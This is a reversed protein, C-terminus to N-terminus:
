RALLERFRAFDARAEALSRDPNVRRHERVFSALDNERAFSVLENTTVQPLPLPYLRFDLTWPGLALSSSSCSSSSSDTPNVKDFYCARAPLV